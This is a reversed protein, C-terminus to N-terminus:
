SAKGKKKKGRGRGRKFPLNGLDYSPPDGEELEVTGDDESEPWSSPDWYPLKPRNAMGELKREAGNMDSWVRMYLDHRDHGQKATVSNKFNSYDIERCFRAMLHEWESRHIIVRYPYDRNPWRLIEPGEYDFEKEYEDVLNAMDEEVRGRVMLWQNDAEEFDLGLREEEGEPLRERVVQVASFFGLPTFVWM